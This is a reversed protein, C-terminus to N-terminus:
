QSFERNRQLYTMTQSIAATIKIVHINAFSVLLDLSKIDRCVFPAAWLAAARSVVAIDLM